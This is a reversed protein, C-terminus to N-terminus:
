QAAENAEVEITRTEPELMQGYVFLGILAALAILLVIAFFRM